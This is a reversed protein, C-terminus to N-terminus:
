TRSVFCNYIRAKPNFIIYYIIRSLIICLRVFVHLVKCQVTYNLSKYHSPIDRSSDAKYDQIYTIFNQSSSLMTYM